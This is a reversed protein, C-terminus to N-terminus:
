LAKKRRYKPILMPTSTVYDLYANGYVRTLKREEFYAGVVIYVTLGIFLALLNATMVPMLWIVLLGATYPHRVWRCAGTVLQSAERVEPKVLQSLGLFTWVGTQMLGIALAALALLQLVTTPVVWPFMIQYLLRDPLLVVLALIPLLSLAAIINYVLRYWREV